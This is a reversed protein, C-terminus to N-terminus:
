LDRSELLLRQELPPNAGEEPITSVVNAYFRVARAREPMTRRLLTWFAPLRSPDRLLQTETRHFRAWQFFPEMPHLPVQHWSGDSRQVQVELEQSNAPRLESLTPYCSFPWSDLVNRMGCYGNIVLMTFGVILVTRGATPAPAQVRERGGGARLQLRRWDILCFDCVLVHWFGLKLLCYNFLHFLIALGVAPGRGSRRLVLFPMALEFLIASLAGWHLLWPQHDIRWLPLWGTNMHVEYRWHWFFINRLNDSWCWQPIGHLTLKWLGPFFYILAIHLQILKLAPAYGPQRTNPFRKGKRALLWCDLSLAHHCPSCALLVLFWIVHHYHVIKSFLGPLALLYCGLLAAAGLSFRTRFGLCGLVSFLFFLPSLCAVLEPHPNLLAAPLSPQQMPLQLRQPLTAMRLNVPWLQLALLSATGAVLIRAMALNVPHEAQRWFRLLPRRSALAAALVLLVRWISGWTM